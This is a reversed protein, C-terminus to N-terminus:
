DKKSKPENKQREIAQYIYAVLGENNEEMIDYICKEFPCNKGCHSPKGLISTALPCGDDEERRRQRYLKLLDVKEGM